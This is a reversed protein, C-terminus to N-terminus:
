DFEGVVTLMTSLVFTLFNRDPPHFRTQPTLLTPRGTDTCSGTGHVIIAALSKREIANSPRPLQPICEIKCDGRYSGSLTRESTRARDEPLQAYEGTARCGESCLTLELWCGPVM